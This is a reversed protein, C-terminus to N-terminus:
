LLTDNPLSPGPTRCLAGQFVARVFECPDALGFLDVAFAPSRADRPRIELLYKDLMCTIEADGLPITQLSRMRRRAFAFSMVELRGPVIRYYLPYLWQVVVPSLLVCGLILMFAWMSVRYYGYAPASILLLGVLWRSSGRATFPFLRPVTVPEFFMGDLDSLGGLDQVHGRCRLRARELRDVNALATEQRAAVKPMQAIMWGILLVACGMLPILAVSRGLYGLADQLVACMFVLPLVFVAFQRRSLIVSKISRGTHLPILEVSEVSKSARSGGSIADQVTMEIVVSAAGWAAHGEQWAASRIRTQVSFETKASAGRFARRNGGLDETV